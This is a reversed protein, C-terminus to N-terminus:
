ARAERLFRERFSLDDGVPVLPMKVAVLQRLQQHRAKYVVGMGGRGLESLIEYGPIAPFASDSAAPQQRQDEVTRATFTGPAEPTTASGPLIPPPWERTPELALDCGCLPCRCDTSSGVEVDIRCRPCLLRQASM